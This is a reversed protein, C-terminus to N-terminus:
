RLGALPRFGKYEPTHEWEEDSESLVLRGISGLGVLIFASGIIDLAGSATPFGIALLIAGIAIFLAMWSQVARARYLGVCLAVLGLAFAFTGLVFPIFYGASDELRELLAAYTGADGAKAMQWAAFGDTALVGMTALLGILALGGGVHGWGVERERLMHMLGLVAPVALVVAVLVLLHAVYWRDPSDAIVRLMERADNSREPHVVMGGLLVLPAAVM